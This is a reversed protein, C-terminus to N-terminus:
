PLYFYMLKQEFSFFDYTVAHSVRLYIRIQPHPRNHREELFCALHEQPLDVLDFLLMEFRFFAM